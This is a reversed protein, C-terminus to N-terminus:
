VMITTNLRSELDGRNKRSGIKDAEPPSMYALFDNIAKNGGITHVNIRNPLFGGLFCCMSRFPIGRPEGIKKSVEWVLRDKGAGSFIASRLPFPDGKQHFSADTRLRRSDRHTGPRESSGVRSGVSLLGPPTPAERAFFNLFPLNGPHAEKM